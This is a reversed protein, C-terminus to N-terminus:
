HERLTVLWKFSNCIANGLPDEITVVSICDKFHNIGNERNEQESTYIIYIIDDITDYYVNLNYAEVLGGITYINESDKWVNIIHADGMCGRHFLFTNGFTFVVKNITVQQCEHFRDVFTGQHNKLPQTLPGRIEKVSSRLSLGEIKGSFMNAICKAKGYLSKGKLYESLYSEAEEIKGSGYLLRYNKIIQNMKDEHSHIGLASLVENSIKDLDNMGVINICQKEQIDILWPVKDYPVSKNEISDMMVVYVKKNFFETAMKYEKHVYSNEKFLIGKTFFLIVAQTKAIKESIKAEWGEGYDIGYDYWLPVNSHYLRQTILGVREADENNYSVFYYNPKNCPKFGLYNSM